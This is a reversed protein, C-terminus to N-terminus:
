SESVTVKEILVTQTPQESANGLNGAVGSGGIQCGAPMDPVSQCNLPISVVTLRLAQGAPRDPAGKDGDGGSCAALVLCVLAALTARM